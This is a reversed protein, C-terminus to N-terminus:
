MESAVAAKTPMPIYVTAKACTLRFRATQRTRAAITPKKNATTTPSKGAMVLACPVFALIAASTM